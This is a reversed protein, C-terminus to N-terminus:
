WPMSAQLTLDHATDHRLGKRGEVSLSLSSDLVLRTGLHWSGGESEALAVRAYPTLVGQGQFALLGWGLAADLRGAAAAAAGQVLAAGDPESWLRAVGGAAAGWSPLVALSPGLDSTGPSLRIAGGAGWGEYSKAEHALLMRVQAEVSLIGSQYGVGAGVELGTGTEADGGDHRLGLEMSPRLTSASPLVLTRSGEVMLRVRRTQGSAEALQDEVADSDARVWMADSRIAVDVAGGELVSGRVGIAGMQLSLGTDMVEDQWVLRLDGSGAGAVGWMSVRSSLLYRAYPYVGTLSSEMAGSGGAQSYAGDGESHSLLVGALWREWEADFGLLGTTVDGDMAMGDVDAQFGGSAIRGWASFVPGGGSPHSAAPGDLRASVAEVVQSGVTRGFRVVWAGPMPDANSITGTAEGDDITAGAPRSLTLTLTEADEDHTDNLVPVSVTKSTEGAAFILRGSAATYDNGATATGDSTAYSVSTERSGAPSVTVVFALTAGEAEAVEADAVSLTLPSTNQALVDVHITEHFVEAESQPPTLAFNFSAYGAGSADTGPTFLLQRAALDATTVLQNVSVAAGALTLGGAAPLSLFKVSLFQFEPAHLVNNFDRRRFAYATNVPTQVRRGFMESMSVPMEDPVPQPNPMARPPRDPRTDPATPPQPQPDPATPPQPQPDPAAPPQPQPDPAAPPQPQTDPVASPQPQPDPAAPPQPQPDPAAPPQPQTDPAAPPQPQTDPAAPPQPQTDPATPPQPQTDPATPPQPQPDPTAPPQPEPQRMPTEPPSVGDGGCGSVAVVLVFVVAQIWRLTM